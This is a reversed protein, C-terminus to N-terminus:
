GSRHLTKIQLRANKILSFLLDLNLFCHMLGRSNVLVSSNDASGESASSQFYHSFDRMPDSPRSLLIYPPHPWPAGWSSACSAVRLAGWLCLGLAVGFCFLSRGTTCLMITTGVKTVGFFDTFSLSGSKYVTVIALASLLLFFIVVVTSPASLVLLLSLFPWPSLNRSPGHAFCYASKVAHAWRLPTVLLLCCICDQGLSVSIRILHM